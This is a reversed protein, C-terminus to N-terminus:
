CGNAAKNRGILLITADMQLLAECSSALRYLLKKNPQVFGFVPDNISTLEIKEVEIGARACLYALTQKTYAVNHWNGDITYAIERDIGHILKVISRFVKHAKLRAILGHANPVIIIVIGGCIAGLNSFSKSPDSLHEFVHSSIILDYKKNLTSSFSRGPSPFNEMGVCYVNIGHKKAVDISEADIDIGVYDYGALTFGAGMFASGCGIELISQVPRGLYTTAYKVIKPAMEKAIEVKSEWEIKRNKTYVSDTYEVIQPPFLFYGCCEYCKYIFGDAIRVATNV